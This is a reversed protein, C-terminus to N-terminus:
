KTQNGYSAERRPTGEEDVIEDRGVRAKIENKLKKEIRMAENKSRLGDRALSVPLRTRPHRLSVYAQWTDKHENYKIGM